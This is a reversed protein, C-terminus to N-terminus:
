LREKRGNRQILLVDNDNKDQEKVAEHRTGLVNQSEWGDERGEMGTLEKERCIEEGRKRM